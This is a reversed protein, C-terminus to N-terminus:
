FDVVARMGVVLADNVRQRAPMLMQVDTTVHFWPTIEANYFVEVGQSDQLGGLTNTLFPLIENSVGAYFWGAGFTDAERGAITSNGGIGASLFYALPNTANDALGARGFVGWGRTSDCPDVYLHQDFNYYLSWSGSQRAIPTNPLLSLPSQNLAVFDRSSWSGGFLHHGPLGFFKTPVRLEPVLVVGEAFLEDFGASKVTDTANLVTFTFFPEGERLVVFGAGLTSYVVTRFGVPTVVFAGHSFQTKGRGHAFANVDGDFTDLKGFFVGFSESLMQTFLVNTLYLDESEPTPLDAAITAPLLTGTAGGISEGMRHQARVKVFLGEPGGLKAADINMVYDGLASHRFERDVGGNAVGFYFQTVDLDWTIGQEAMCSRRGRWDGTLTERNWLCETDDFAGYGCLDSACDACGDCSQQAVAMSPAFQLMAM